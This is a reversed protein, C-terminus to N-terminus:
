NGTKPSVLNVVSAKIANRFAKLVHGANALIGPNNKELSIVALALREEQESIQKNSLGEERGMQYILRSLEEPDIGADNVHDKKPKEVSIKIERPSAELTGISTSATVM